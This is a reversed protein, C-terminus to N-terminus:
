PREGPQRLGDVIGPWLGDRGAALAAQGILEYWFTESGGRDRWAWLRRTYRHLAHERTFGIAGHIQHAIAAVKGAAESARGKAVAAAWLPNPGALDRAAVAVAAESAAAEEAMRAAMHQIAQFAGIPRGFQKRTTAYDITMASTASMAGSLAAALLTAYLAFPLDAPCALRHRADVDRADSISLCPEGAVSVSPIGTLQAALAIAAHTGDRGLAITQEAISQWPVMTAAFATPSGEGKRPPLGHPAHPSLAADALWLAKAGAAVELGAKALAWNAVMTECIPVSAAAAGAARAIAVAAEFDDGAGGQDEPLLLRDLGAEEIRSWLAADFGDAASADAFVRAATEAILLSLESM